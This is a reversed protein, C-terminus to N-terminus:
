MAKDFRRGRVVTGVSCNHRPSTTVSSICSEFFVRDTCFSIEVMALWNWMMASRSSSSSETDGEGVLEILSFVWRSGDFVGSSGSKVLVNQCVMDLSHDVM